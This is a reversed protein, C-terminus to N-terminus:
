TDVTDMYTELREGFSALIVVVSDTALCTSRGMAFMAGSPM